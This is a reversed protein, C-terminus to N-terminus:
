DASFWYSHMEQLFQPTIPFGSASPIVSDIGCEPCMATQDMEIWEVIQNPSFVAFCYFCGCQPSELVENRHMSAVRHAEKIQSPFREIRELSADWEAKLRAKEKESSSTPWWDKRRAGAYAAVLGSVIFVWLFPSSIGM